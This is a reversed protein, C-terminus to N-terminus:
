FVRNPVWRSSSFHMTKWRKACNTGWVTGGRRSRGAISHQRRVRAVRQISWRKGMGMRRSLKNLVLAIDDDGYRAATKRSMMGKMGM